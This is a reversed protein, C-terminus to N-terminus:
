PCTNGLVLRLERIREKAYDPKSVHFIPSAFSHSEKTIARIVDEKSVGNCPDM